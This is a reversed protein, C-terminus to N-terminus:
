NTMWFPQQRYQVFEIHVSHNHLHINNYFVAESVASSGHIFWDCKSLLLIDMLIQIGLKFKSQSKLEFPATSNSSRFINQTAINIYKNQYKTNNNKISDIYDYLQLLMRTDDTAVIINVIPKNLHFLQYQIWNLLYPQYENFEINRRISWQQVKDSGRMHIGLVTINQTTIGYKNNIQIINDYWFQTVQCKIEKKVHIYQQTIDYGRQRQKRFWDDYYISMNWTTNHYYWAFIGNKGFKHLILLRRYPFLYLKSKNIDCNSPPIIPEFYYNWYNDGYREEYFHFNFEKSYNLWIHQKVRKAELIFNIGFLYYLTAFGANRTGGRAVWIQCAKYDDNTKQQYINPQNMVYTTSCNEHYYEKINTTNKNDGFFANYHINFVDHTDRFLFTDMM